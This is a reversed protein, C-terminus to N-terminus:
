PRGGVSKRLRPDMADRLGEGVLNYAVVGFFIAVGPFLVLWWNTLPASRAQNLLEGWTATPPAVGFGLFSLGSETLIAGAIGFSVNVLVPAIANPLIHRFIIRFNGAGLARASTVYDLSKQKLVEGRALRAVSTWGTFGIVLMINLISRKDMIAIITLILFFTPFCIMIEVIRSFVMDILGGFYGSSAGILLGILTAISVSVFGVALSVRAGHVLRVFVDRGVEDTGCLHYGEWSPAVKAGFGQQNPGYPLLPFVARGKGENQLAVYDNGDNVRATLLFPLLLAGALVASVFRQKTIWRRVLLVCPLTLLLYNYFIELLPETSETPAFLERILPFSWAGDASKWVIPLRHAIFPAFFALTCFFLVMALGIVSWHSQRFQNWVTRLYSQRAEVASSASHNALPTRPAASETL